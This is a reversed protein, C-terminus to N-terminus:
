REQNEKEHCNGKEERVCVNDSNWKKLYAIAKKLDKITYDGAELQVAGTQYRAIPPKKKNEM